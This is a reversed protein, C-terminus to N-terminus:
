LDREGFHDCLHGKPLCDKEGLLASYNFKKAAKDSFSVPQLLEVAPVRLRYPLRDVGQLCTTQHDWNVLEDGGADAGDLVANAILGHWACTTEVCLARTLLSEATANRWQKLARSTSM